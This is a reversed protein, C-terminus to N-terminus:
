VFSANDGPASFRSLPRKRRVDEPKKYAIANCAAPASPSTAAM